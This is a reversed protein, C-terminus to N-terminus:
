SALSMVVNVEGRKVAGRVLGIKRHANKIWIATKNNGNKTKLNKSATGELLRTNEPKSNTKGNGKKDKPM